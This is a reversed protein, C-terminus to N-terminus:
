LSNNYKELIQSARDEIHGTMNKLCEKIESDKRPCPYRLSQGSFLPKGKIRNDDVTYYMNLCYKDQNEIFFKHWAKMTERSIERDKAYNYKLIKEEDVCEQIKDIMLPFYDRVDELLGKSSSFEKPCPMINAISHCLEALRRIDPYKDCLVNVRRKEDSNEKFYKEPFSEYHARHNKYIKVNGAEAIPYIEPYESHMAFSFTTWFSNIIDYHTNKCWGLEKYLQKAANGYEVDIQNSTFYEFIKGIANSEKIDELLVEKVVEM